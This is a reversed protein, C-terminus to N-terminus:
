KIILEKVVTAENDLVFKVLYLGKSVGSLNITRAESDQKHIEKGTVDYVFVKVNKVANSVKFNIATGNNVPNPYMKFDLLLAEEVGAVPAQICRLPFGYIRQRDFSIATTADLRFIQAYTSNTASVSSTWYGLDAWSAQYIQGDQISRQRGQPLKLFSDFANQDSTFGEDLFDQITPVVFGSPCPNNVVDALQWRTDDSVELWDEVTWGPGSFYFLSGETGAVVGTEGAAEFGYTTSSPDEHGDAKRGWQYLDGYSTADTLSTAVQTAGLNRDLWVKGTVPSTVTTQAYALMSSVILITSLLKTKM